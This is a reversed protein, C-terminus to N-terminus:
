WGADQPMYGSGFMTREEIRIEIVLIGNRIVRIMRVHRHLDKPHQTWQKYYSSFDLVGSKVM